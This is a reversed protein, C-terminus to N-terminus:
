NKIEEVDLVATKDMGSLKTIAKYVMAIEGGLLVASVIDVPRTVGYKERLGKDKFDPDNSLNYVVWKMEETESDKANESIEKIEDLTGARFSIIFPKGLQKSLRKIEVKGTPINKVKSPDATLLMELTQGM